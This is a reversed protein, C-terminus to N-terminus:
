RREVLRRVTDRLEDLTFPKSLYDDAFEAAEEPRQISGTFIAVGVDPHSAHLGRALALGDDFGLHLDLLVADVDEAALVRRLEEATAAELVRYGELELNVRCVLRIGADDDAVVVASQTEGHM